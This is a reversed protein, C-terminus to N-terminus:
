SYDKCRISWQPPLLSAEAVGCESVKAQPLQAQLRADQLAQSCDLRLQQSQVLLTAAGADVQGRQDAVSHRVDDAGEGQALAEVVFVVLEAGHEAQHVTPQLDTHVARCDEDVDEWQQVM